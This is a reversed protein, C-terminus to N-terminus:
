GHPCELPINSPYLYKENRVGTDCKGFKVKDVGTKNFTDFWPFLFIFIKQIYPQKLM